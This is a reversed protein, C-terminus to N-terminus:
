RYWSLQLKTTKLRPDDKVQFHLNQAFWRSFLFKSQAFDADAFGTDSIKFPVVMVTQKSLPIHINLEDKQDGKEVTFKPPFSLAKVLTAESASLEILETKREPEFASQQLIYSQILTTMPKWQYAAPLTCHWGQHLPIVKVMSKGLDMEHDYIKESNLAYPVIPDKETAFILVPTKVNKYYPWFNNGFWYDAKHERLPAPLPVLWDLTKPGKYDAEMYAMLSRLFDHDQIEPLVDRVSHLRDHIWWNFIAAELPHETHANITERYAILPCFAMATQIVPAHAPKVQEQDLSSLLSAFLVGHGGMSIGTLHVDQIIRSLPEDPSQLKKAVQFNQVGEDFGGLALTKNRRIFEKSSDSELILMNFPSQEFLQMFLFREPLFQTVSSFIGLRLIVLPRKKNDGKLGLFGKLRVGGPMHFVVFRGYPHNKPELKLMMALYANSLMDTWGTEVNSSCKQVYNEISDAVEQFSHRQTNKELWQDSRCAQSTKEASAEPDYKLWENSLIKGLQPYRDRWDPVHDYEASVFEMFPSQYQKFTQDSITECGARFPALALALLLIGLLQFTLVPRM